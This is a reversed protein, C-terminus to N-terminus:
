GRAQLLPRLSDGWQVAEPDDKEGKGFWLSNYTVYVSFFGIGRIGFLM